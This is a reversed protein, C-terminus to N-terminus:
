PCYTLIPDHPSDDTDGCLTVSCYRCFDNEMKELFLEKARELGYVVVDSNIENGISMGDDFLPDYTIWEVKYFDKM